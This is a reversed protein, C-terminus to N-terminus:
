SSRCRCRRVATSPALARLECPSGQPSPCSQCLRLATCTERFEATVAQALRHAVIAQDREARRARWRSIFGPPRRRGAAPPRTRDLAKTTM